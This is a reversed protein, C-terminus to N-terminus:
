GRQRERGSLLVIDKLQQGSRADMWRQDFGPEHVVHAINMLAKLHYNREDISGVLVFATRVPENLEGFVIGEKCRVLVIEFVNKGPLVIHPIALGPQIVTSSERERDLFLGYLEDENMDLRMSLSKAVERFLERANMSRDIDLVLCDKVLHDFRDFTVEDRELVISILEEDLRAQGINRSLVRKVMFMLASQRDIRVHVYALYWILSLLVFSGTLILPLTGMELILFFYIIVAAIQLWPCLPARFTPRYNQVGSGRMVVVSINVLVFMLLMMTSATKVLTEIDLFVIVVAIIIGTWIIATQPTGSRKSVRSFVRPLLGDRSMAMPARSASMIGSNATTAFALFAAINILVMGAPGLVSGAGLSIPRLSNALSEGDVLGVTAFIVLIYLANVIVSALIMGLPLNKTPNRVEESMSVVKTLGGYSVFVMGSVTFVSKWGRDMFPFFRAESVQPIGRVLYFVLIALLGLVLYVQIRGSERTSFSNLVAFVVLGALATAKIAWPGMGPLILAGLTGIGVLAFTAKLAISMWNAFGAISGMLPGLSREVYFYSGGSKPMATALEAKSLMVPIMMISALAYSFIVAPGAIRYALGPLVFLGSSIMAGAAISFVGLLGLERKLRVTTRKDQGM